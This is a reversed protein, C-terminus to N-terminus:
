HQITHVNLSLFERALLCVCVDYSGDLIFCKRSTISLDQLNITTCSSSPAYAEPHLIQESKVKGKNERLVRVTNIEHLCKYYVNDTRHM